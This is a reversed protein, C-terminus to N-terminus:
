LNDSTLVDSLAQILFKRSIQTSPLSVVEDKEM